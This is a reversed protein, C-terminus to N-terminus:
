DYKAREKETIGLAKELLRTIYRSRPMDKREKEIRKTLAEPLSVTFKLTAM